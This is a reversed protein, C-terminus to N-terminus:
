AAPPVYGAPLKPYIAPRFNLMAIKALRRLLRGSPTSSDRREAWQIAAVVAGLVASFAAAELWTPVDVPLDIGKAAAYAVLWAWAAQLAARIAGNLWAPM